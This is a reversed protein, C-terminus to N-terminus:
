QAEGPPGEATHNITDRTLKDLVEEPNGITEALGAIARGAYVVYVFGPFELGALVENMAQHEGGGPIWCRAAAFLELLARSNEEPTFSYSPEAAGNEDGTEDSM